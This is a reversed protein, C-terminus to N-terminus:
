WAQKMDDYLRRLMAFDEQGQPIGNPNRLYYATHYTVLVQAGEWPFLRGRMSKMSDKIGLLVQMAFRGLCVIIKPQMISLQTLLYPKCIEIETPEPDRNGPPRCKLVNCIYIDNRTFGVETLLEDLLKGARGVFPIGQLDEDRGPAEGVFVIESNPNGVGFVFKTRTKGLPCLTCDHIQEEFDALTQPLPTLAGRLVRLRKVEPPPPLYIEDEFLSQQQFYRTALERAQEVSSSDKTM